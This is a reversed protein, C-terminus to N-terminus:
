CHVFVHRGCVPFIFIGQTQFNVAPGALSARLFVQTLPRFWFRGSFDRRFRLFIPSFKIPRATARLLFCLWGVHGIKLLALSKFISSLGVQRATARFSSVRGCSPSDPGGAHSLRSFRCVRDGLFQPFLCDLAKFLVPDMIEFVEVQPVFVAASGMAFGFTRPLLERAFSAVDNARHQYIVCIVLVQGQSALFFIRVGKRPLNVALGKGPLNM